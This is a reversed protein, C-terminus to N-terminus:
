SKNTQLKNNKSKIVATSPKINLLKLQKNAPREGKLDQEILSLYLSLSLWNMVNIRKLNSM